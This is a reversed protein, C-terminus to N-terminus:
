RNRYAFPLLAMRSDVDEAAGAAPVDPRRRTTAHPAARGATLRM